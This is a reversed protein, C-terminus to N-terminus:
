HVRSSGTGKLMEEQASSMALPTSYRRLVHNWDESLLAVKTGFQKLQQALTKARLTPITWVESQTVALAEGKAKGLLKALLRYSRSKHKPTASIIVKEYDREGYKNAARSQDEAVNQAAAARMAPLCAIAMILVAVANRAAIALRGKDFMNVVLVDAPQGQAHLEARCAIDGAPVITRRAEKLSATALVSISVLLVDASGGTSPRPSM